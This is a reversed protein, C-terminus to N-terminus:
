CDLDDCQQECIGLVNEARDMCREFWAKDRDQEKRETKCRAREEAFRDKCISKCYGCPLPADDVQALRARTRPDASDQSQPFAAPASLTIGILAVAVATKM